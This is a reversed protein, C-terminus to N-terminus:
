GNFFYTIQKCILIMQLTSKLPMSWSVYYCFPIFPFYYANGGISLMLEIRSFCKTGSMFHSIQKIKLQLIYGTYLICTAKRSVIENWCIFPSIWWVTSYFFYLDAWQLFIIVCRFSVSGDLISGVGNYGTQRGYWSCYHATRSHCEQHFFFLTFYIYKQTLFFLINFNM